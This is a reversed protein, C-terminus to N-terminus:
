IRYRVSDAKIHIAPMETDDKHKKVLAKGLVTLILCLLALRLMM